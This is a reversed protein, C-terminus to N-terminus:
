QAIGQLCPKVGGLGVQPGSHGFCQGGPLPLLFPTGPCQPQGDAQSCRQQQGRTGQQALHFKGIQAGIGAGTKGGFVVGAIGNLVVLGGILEGVFKHIGQQGVVVPLVICVAHRGHAGKQAAAVQRWFAGAATAVVAPRVQSLGGAQRQHM